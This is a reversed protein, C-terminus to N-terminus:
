AFFLRQLRIKIKKALILLLRRGNTNEISQERCTRLDNELMNVKAVIDTYGKEFASLKLYYMEPHVIDWPVEKGTVGQPLSTGEKVAVFLNQKYWVPLVDHAWFKRRIIDLLIFGNQQFLKEWFSPLQENYHRTGGQKPIAASFLVIDARETLYAIFKEARELEFHEAVELSIALDYHDTEPFSKSLDHALFKVPPIHLFEQPVWPGDIGLFNKIGILNLAALWGGAGCGIEIASNIQPFMTLLEVLVDQYASVPEDFRTKYFQADYDRM